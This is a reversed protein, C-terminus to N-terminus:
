VLERSFWMQFSRSPNMRQFIHFSHFLRIKWELAEVGSVVQSFITESILSVILLLDQFISSRFQLGSSCQM